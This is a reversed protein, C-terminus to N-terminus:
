EYPLRYRNEEEPRIKVLNPHIGYKQNWEKLEEM